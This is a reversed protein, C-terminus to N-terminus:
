VNLGILRREIVKDSKGEYNGLSRAQDANTIVDEIKLRYIELNRWEACVTNKDSDLNISAIWKRFPKDHYLLNGEKASRGAIVLAEELRKESIM